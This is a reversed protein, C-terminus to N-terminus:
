SSLTVLTLLGDMMVDREEKFMEVKDKITEVWGEGSLIVSDSRESQHKV